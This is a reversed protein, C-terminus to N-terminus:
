AAERHQQKMVRHIAATLKESAEPTVGEPCRVIENAVLKLKEPVPQDNFIVAVIPKDMMISAGLEVWFKVDGERDDPVMSISLASDALKPAMEDLVHRVWRKASPDQWADDYERYRRQPQPKRKKKKAV